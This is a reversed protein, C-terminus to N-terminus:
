CSLLERGCSTEVHRPVQSEQKKNGKACCTSASSEVDGSQISGKHVSRFFHNPLVKRTRRSRSDNSLTGGWAGGLGESGRGEGQQSACSTASAAAASRREALTHLPLCFPLCLNCVFSSRFSCGPDLSSFFAVNAAHYRRLPPFNKFSLPKAQIM